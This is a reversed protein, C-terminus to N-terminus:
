FFDSRSRRPPPSRELWEEGEDLVLSSLIGEYVSEATLPRRAEMHSVATELRQCLSSVPDEDDEDCLSFRHGLAPVTVDDWNRRPPSLSRLV